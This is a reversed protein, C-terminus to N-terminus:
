GDVGCVWWLLGLGARAHRRQQHGDLVRLRLRGEEEEVFAGVEPDTEQRQILRNISSRCCEGQESSKRTCSPHTHKGRSGGAEMSGGVWGGVGRSLGWGVVAVV